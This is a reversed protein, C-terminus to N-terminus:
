PRRDPSGAASANASWPGAALLLLLVGILLSCLWWTQWAGYAFSAVALTAGYCALAWPQATDSLRRTRELLLLLVALLLASGAIGLELLSQLFLNHPHLPVINGDVFRSARGENPIARSSDLGWGFVPKALVREAAFDWIEVRHRFSFPLWEAEHLGRERLHGSIPVAGVFGAVLLAAVAARGLRRSAAAIGLVVLGVGMGVVSSQSPSLFTLAFFAAPLLLAAWGLGRRWLMLAAPWVLVSLIAAPRNIARDPAVASGDLSKAFRYIPQDLLVEVAFLAFGLLLSALVVRALRERREPALGSAALILLFGPVFEYLFTVIQAVGGSVRVPAPTWLVSIGAYLFFLGFAAVLPRDLGPVGRVRWLWLGGLFVGLTILLPAMGLPLLAAFPGVLALLTLAIGM